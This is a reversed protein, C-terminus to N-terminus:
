DESLLLPSDSHDSQEKLPSPNEMPIKNQFKHLM